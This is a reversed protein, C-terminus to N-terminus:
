QKQVLVGHATEIAWELAAKRDGFGRAIKIEELQVLTSADIWNDIRVLGKDRKASKSQTPGSTRPPKKETTMGAM